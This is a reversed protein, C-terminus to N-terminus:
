IEIGWGSWASHAMRAARAPFCIRQSFGSAMFATSAAATMAAARAAPTNRMSPNM